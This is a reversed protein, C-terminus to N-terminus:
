PMLKPPQPEPEIKAEIRGVRTLLGSMVDFLRSLSYAVISLLLVSLGLVLGYNLFALVATIGGLAAAGGLVAEMRGATQQSEYVASTKM